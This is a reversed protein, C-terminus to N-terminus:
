SLSQRKAIVNVNSRRGMGDIMMHCKEPQAVPPNSGYNRSKFDFKLGDGVYPIARQGYALFDLSEGNKRLM